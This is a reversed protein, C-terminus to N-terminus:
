AAGHHVVMHKITTLLWLAVIGSAVAYLLWAAGLVLGTIALVLTMVGLTSLLGTWIPAEPTPANQACIVVGALGLVLIGIRPTTLWSQWGQSAAWALAVAAAALITALGDKWTFTM